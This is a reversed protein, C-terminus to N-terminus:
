KFASSAAGYSAFMANLKLLMSFSSPAVSM